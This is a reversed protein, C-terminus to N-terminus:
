YSVQFEPVSRAEPPLLPQLRTPSLPRAPPAEPPGELAPPGELGPGMEPPGELAPPGEPPPESCRQLLRELEAEAEPPAPRAPPEYGGPGPPKKEYAVDLDSENWSKQHRRKIIGLDDQARFMGSAGSLSLSPYLGQVEYQPPAPPREPLFGGGAAGEGGRPSGGLGGLFEYPRLPRPSPARGAGAGPVSLVKPRPSPAREEGGGSLFHTQPRSSSPSGLPDGLGGGLELSDGLFLSRRGPRGSQERPPPGPGDTWLSELQRSLEDVKAVATDLEVQKLDMHQM